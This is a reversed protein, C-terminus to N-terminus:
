IHEYWRPERGAHLPCRLGGGDMAPQAEARGSVLAIGLDVRRAMSVISLFFLFSFAPM